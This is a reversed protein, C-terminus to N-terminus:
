PMTLRSSQRDAAIASIGTKVPERIANHGPANGQLSSVYQSQLLCYLIFNCKQFRIRPNKRVVNIPPSTANNGMVITIM